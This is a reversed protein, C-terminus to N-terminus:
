VVLRPPATVLLLLHPLHDLVLDVRRRWGGRARVRRGYSRLAMLALLKTLEGVNDEYKWVYEVVKQGM